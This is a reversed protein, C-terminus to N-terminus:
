RPFRRGERPRGTVSPEEVGEVEWIRVEGLTEPPSDFHAPNGLILIVMDEPHVHERFVRQVAGPTVRQIGRIYQELWDEPLGQSLYFMQRSVVQAPDQFNFVFGNVIQSIALDVEERPPPAGRMEEMTDLILRVAAITSESKTQTVAGVIGEHRAPTTWLSSASYAWGRETRVRSVLRSSFGSGGLISNGIRSAFYDEDTGQTVGGPQAMVVTSQTLERPILFVGGRRRMEPTRPESLPAQCSPWDEVMDELRHRLAEWGVDGVVGLILNEPCFIRSHVEALTRASFREPTLDGEEMEWGIPHDGFMLRNFESFAFGGPSDKRRRISEKQRDRWIEVEEPDFRPNRLIEKWLTLAPDLHKSLTNLNSFSSEGGGGFATQLAYFELLHDVSDPSLSETGGTRLMGPLATAAAYREKPLLAFGGRFRAYLSVLPLSHDELFLVQIGSSLTERRPVPPDFRLEGFELALAAERPSRHPVQAGLSGPLALLLLPLGARVRPSLSSVIM